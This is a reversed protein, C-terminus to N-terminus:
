AHTAAYAPIVAQLILERQRISILKTEVNIYFSAAIM